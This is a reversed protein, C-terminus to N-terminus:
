QWLGLHVESFYSWTWCDHHKWSHGKHSVYPSYVLFTSFVCLIYPAILACFNPFSWPLNLVWKVGRRYVWSSPLDDKKAKSGLSGSTALWFWLHLGPDADRQPHSYSKVLCLEKSPLHSAGWLEPLKPKLKQERMFWGHPQSYVVMNHEWKLRPNIM